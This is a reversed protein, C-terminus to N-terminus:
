ERLGLRGRLDMGDSDECLLKTTPDGRWERLEKVSFAFSLTETRQAQGNLSVGAAVAFSQSVGSITTGLAGSTSISSPGVHTPYANHLPQNFSAGPALTAQDLVQLTLDTQATWNQLWAFKKYKDPLWNGADDEFASSLECKTRLVIDYVPIGGTAEDLAPLTGCAGVALGCALGAVIVWTRIVGVGM